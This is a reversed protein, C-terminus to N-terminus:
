RLGPRFDKGIERRPDRDDVKNSIQTHSSVEREGEAVAFKGLFYEYIRGFIDKRKHDDAFEIKSFLDILYAHDLADLNISTYIKPVVDKLQGSYEHKFAEIAQDLLEGIKPQTANKVM